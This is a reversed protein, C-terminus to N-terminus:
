KRFYKGIVPLSALPFDKRVTYVLFLVIGISNFAIRLGDSGIFDRSISMVAYLVAALGVYAFIQKLPYAIPYYKQGTFYSLLMAVTYGAVGSWACAM